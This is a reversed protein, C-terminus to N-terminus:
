SYFHMEGVSCLKARGGRHVQGWALRHVDVQGRGLRGEGAPDSVGLDAASGLAALRAAFAALTAAALAPGVPGFACLAAASGSLSAAMSAAMDLGM